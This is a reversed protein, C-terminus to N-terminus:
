YQVATPGIKLNLENMDNVLEQNLTSLHLVPWLLSCCLCTVEPLLVIQTHIVNAPNVFAWSLASKQGSSM